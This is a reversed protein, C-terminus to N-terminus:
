KADRWRSGRAKRSITFLSTPAVAATPESDNGAYCSAVSFLHWEGKSMDFGIHVTEVVETKDRPLITPGKQQPLAISPSHSNMLFRVLLIQICNQNEYRTTIRLVTGDVGTKEPFVDISHIAIHPRVPQKTFYWGIIIAVLMGGVVRCLMKASPWAM